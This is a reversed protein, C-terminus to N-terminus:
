LGSSGGSWEIEFRSQLNHTTQRHDVRFCLFRPSSKLFSPESKMSNRSATATRSENTRCRLIRYTNQISRRTGLPSSSDAIGFEFIKHASIDLRRALQEGRITTWPSSHGLSTKFKSNSNVFPPPPLKKNSPLAISTKPSRRNTRLWIISRWISCQKAVMQNETHQQQSLNIATELDAQALDNRKLILYVLARHAIAWDYKPDMCRPLSIM